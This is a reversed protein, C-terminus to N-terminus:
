SQKSFYGDSDPGSFHLIKRICDHNKFSDSMMSHNKNSDYQNVPRQIKYLRINFLNGNLRNDQFIMRLIAFVSNLRLELCTKQNQGNTLSFMSLSFLALNNCNTVPVHLTGTPPNASSM